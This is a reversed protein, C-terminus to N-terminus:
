AYENRFVDSLARLADLATFIGTLKGEDMILVSGYKQDVMQDVVDVLSADPGVIFPNPTLATEVKMSRSNPNQFSLVLFIDRDTVIGIPKGGKIVPLHRVHLKRMYEAAQELTQDSGITKPALTMYQRLIPIPRM